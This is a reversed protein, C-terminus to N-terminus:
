NCGLSVLGGLLGAGGAALMAGTGGRGGGMGGGMGGPPPGYAPGYAPGPTYAPGPGYAPGGPAPSGYPVPSGYAPAGPGYPPAHGALRCWNASAVIEQVM